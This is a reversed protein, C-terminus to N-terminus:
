YFYNPAMGPMPMGMSPPYQPYPLRPQNNGFLANPKPNQLEKILESMKDIKVKRLHMITREKSFDELFKDIDIEGALFDQAIKESNEESEASSAELLALTTDLSVGSSKSESIDFNNRYYFTKVYLKILDFSIARVIFM